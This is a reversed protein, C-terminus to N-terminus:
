LEPKFITRRYFRLEEISERIDELARHTEHKPPPVIGYWRKALEKMTSIDIVRYHFHRDLRPMYRRLFRRDQGISNGCLPSKGPETWMELFDLTMQEAERMTVRSQRVSLTLGSDGHHQTNWADMAALVEDSQHIVINPGEAIIELANNTVLTAMELPRCVEPDLGSMEMDLWVLNDARRALPDELPALPWPLRLM